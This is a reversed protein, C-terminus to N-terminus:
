CECIEKADLGERDLGAAIYQFTPWNSSDRFYAFGTADVLEQQHESLPAFLRSVIREVEIPTELEDTM